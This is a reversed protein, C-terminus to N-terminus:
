MAIKKPEPWLIKCTKATIKEKNLTYFHIHEVGNDILDRCQNTLLEESLKTADEPSDKYKEFKTHLWDPIYAQCRTAFNCTKNFSHIPLVGPVIPTTIGAKQTQELFKYFSENEFFFQTIARDAGADCKKKLAEIDKEIDPADPHKEPYAGVSIEFDYMSKLFSVFNSTQQIYNSDPDLPWALDDTLDGRLAVIHRIGSNWLEETIKVLEINPTNIYTLHSATPINTKEQAGIALEITRDKTTGGSGYTVTMFSPNLSALSEIHKWINKRGQDTKPPFFEFSFTTNNVSVKNAENNM